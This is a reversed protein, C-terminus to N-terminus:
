RRLAGLPLGRLEAYQAPTLCERQVRQVEAAKPELIAVYSEQLARCFRTVFM